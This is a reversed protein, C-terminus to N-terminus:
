LSRHLYEDVERTLSVRTAGSSSFVRLCQDGRWLSVFHEDERLYFGKSEQDPRLIGKLSRKSQFKAPWRPM